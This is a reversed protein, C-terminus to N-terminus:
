AEKTKTEPKPTRGLTAPESKQLLATLEAVQKKLEDVDDKTQNQDNTKARDIWESCKRKMQFGGLINRLHVDPVTVFQEATYIHKAELDKVQQESFLETEKLLHGNRKFEEGKKFAQYQQPFREILHPFESVRKVVKKLNDGPFQMECFETKKKIVEAVEMNPSKPDADRYFVEDAEYFRVVLDADKGHVAAGDSNRFDKINAFTM